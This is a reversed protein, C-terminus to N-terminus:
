NLLILGSPQIPPHVGSWTAININANRGAVLERCSAGANDDLPWYAILNAESGTLRKYMNQQIEAQTRIASWMRVDAMQGEFDNANSKADAGILIDLTNSVSALSSAGNGNTWSGSLQIGNQYWKTNAGTGYQHVLALHIWQNPTYNHGTGSYTQFSSGTNHNFTIETSSIYLRYPQPNNAGTKTFFMGSNSANTPRIWCEITISAPLFAANHAINAYAANDGGFDLSCNTMNM